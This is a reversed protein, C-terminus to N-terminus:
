AAIKTPPAVTRQPKAARALLASLPVIVLAAFATIQQIQDSPLTPDWEALGDHYGVVQKTAAVMGNNQPTM